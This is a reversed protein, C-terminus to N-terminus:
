REKRRKRQTFFRVGRGMKHSKIALITILFERYRKRAFFSTLFKLIYLFSIVIITEIIKWVTPSSLHNIFTNFFDNM